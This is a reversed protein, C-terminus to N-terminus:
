RHRKGELISDVLGRKYDEWKENKYFDRRLQDDTPTDNISLMIADKTPTDIRRLFDWKNLVYMRTQCTTIVTSEQRTKRVMGTEGFFDYRRLTGLELFLKGNGQPPVYGPGFSRSSGRSTLSGRSSESSVLSRYSSRATLAGSMGHRGMTGSPPVDDVERVVKCSGSVIFFIDESEQGQKVVVTNRLAERPILVYALSQFATPSLKDFIPVKRLFAVKENLQSENVQKLIMNYDAKGVKLFECQERTTVTAARKSHQQMLALEGFPEGAYMTAVVNEVGTSVDMISVNVSGALIIYFENGEDDQRFIVTNPPVAQYKMVRCMELRNALPLTSVYKMRLLHEELLQLDEHTREEPKKELIARRRESRQQSSILWFDTAKHVNIQRRTIQKWSKPLQQGGEGSHSPGPHNPVTTLSTRRPRRTIQELANPNLHFRSSATGPSSTSSTVPTGAEEPM